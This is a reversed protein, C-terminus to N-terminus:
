QIQEAKGATSPPPDAAAIRAEPRAQIAGLRVVSRGASVNVNIGLDPRIKAAAAPNAMLLLAFVAFASTALPKM